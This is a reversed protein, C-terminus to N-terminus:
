SPVFVPFPFAVAQKLGLTAFDWIQPGSSTTLGGTFDLFISHLGPLYELIIGARVTVHFPLCLEIQNWM